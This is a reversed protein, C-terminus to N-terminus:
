ASLLYGLFLLSLYLFIWLQGRIAFAYSGAEGKIGKQSLAVGKPHVALGSPLLRSRSPLGKNFGAGRDAVRQM